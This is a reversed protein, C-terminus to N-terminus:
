SLARRSGNWAASGSRVAEGLGRGRRIGGLFSLGDPGKGEGACKHHVLQVLERKVNKPGDPM